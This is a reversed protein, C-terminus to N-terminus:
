PVVSVVASVGRQGHRLRVTVSAGRVSRYTYRYVSDKFRNLSPVPRSIWFKTNKKQAYEVVDMDQAYM